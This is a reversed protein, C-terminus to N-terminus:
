HLHVRIQQFAEIQTTLATTVRNSKNIQGIIAQEKRHILDTIMESLYRYEKSLLENLQIFLDDINQRLENTFSFFYSNLLDDLKHDYREHLRRIKAQRSFFVDNWQLSLIFTTLDDSNNPLQETYLEFSELKDNIGISQRGGTGSISDLIQLEMRDFAKGHLMAAKKIPRNLNAVLKAKFATLAEPIIKQLALSVGKLSRKDCASSDLLISLAEKIQRTLKPKTSNLQEGMFKLVAKQEAKLLSREKDLQKNVQDNQERLIDREKNFAVAPTECDTKQQTLVGIISNITEKLTDNLAQSLTFYKESALFNIIDNRVAEMGSHAWKPDHLTQTRAQEAMRACIHFLHPRETHRLQSMLIDSIFSDVKKLQASTLLDVKNLLFFLRPVHYAVRKLFEVETQTMPPDASLLFLAADCNVLSDLAAKTNHLYTSGFGPTDILVTGNELLPSPVCVEVSDVNYQNQPNFEEAVYTLLAHTIKERSTRIVIDPKNNFFRIACSLEAGYILRTPVTTIPLVSTPLLPIGILSNIFTSKGRNFEGVVSLHLRGYALRSYLETVQQTYLNFSQPLKNCEQLTANILEDISKPEISTQVVANIVHRSSTGTTPQLHNQIPSYLRMTTNIDSLHYDSSNNDTMIDSGM